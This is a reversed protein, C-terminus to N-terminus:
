LLDDHSRSPLKLASLGGITLFSAIMIMPVICHVDVLQGFAVNGLIAAIRGVSM